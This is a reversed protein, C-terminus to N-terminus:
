FCIVRVGIESFARSEFRWFADAPWLRDNVALCLSLDVPLSSFLLWGLFEILMSYRLRMSSSLRSFFIRSSAKLFILKLGKWSM